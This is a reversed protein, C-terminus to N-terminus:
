GKFVMSRHYKMYEKRKEDMPLMQIFDNDKIGIHRQNESSLWHSIKVRRDDTFTMWGQDFLRDYLPSLIFGNKPDVRETKNSVAWPKIHSAILLTTETIKSIPCFPCENLLKERYAGQGIRAQRQQEEKREEQKTIPTDEKEQTKKGYKFVLANAKDAIADFDAFLKWYYIPTGSSDTLKMASIYSVLPLSMERIIEYGEDKSNVYGRSGAIQKQDQISFEIVDSLAEIKRMRENWLRAMNNKGRYEQSPHQYETKMAQMYSVLDQKTIFCKAIFGEGGYFDRMKDKSTIYLKAEGHGSGLKNDGYVLCDPVTVSTDFTDKITFEQGCIIM